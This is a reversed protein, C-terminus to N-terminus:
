VWPAGDRGGYENPVAIAGSCGLTRVTDCAWCPWAPRGGGTAGAFQRFQFSVCARSEGCECPGPDPYTWGHRTRILDMPLTHAPPPVTQIESQM